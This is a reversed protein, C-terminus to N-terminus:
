QYVYGGSVMETGDEEYITNGAKKQALLYRHLLISYSYFVMMKEYTPEDLFFSRDKEGLWAILDMKKLSFPGFAWEFWYPPAIVIDSFYLQFENVPLLEGEYDSYPKAAVLDTHFHENAMLVIGIRFKSEKLDETRKLRIYITDKVVGSRITLSESLLDYHLGEIATTASDLVLSIKRDFAQPAGTTAVVIPVITDPVQEDSYAFTVEATNTAGLYNVDLDSYFYINDPIHYLELEKKQCALFFIALGLALTASIKNLTKMNM